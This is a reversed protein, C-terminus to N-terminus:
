QGGCFLVTCVQFAHQLWRHLLRLAEAPRRVAVPHTPESGTRGDDSTVAELITTGM